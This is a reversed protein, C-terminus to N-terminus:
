AVAFDRGGRVVAVSRRLGARRNNDCGEV